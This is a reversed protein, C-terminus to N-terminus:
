GIEMFTDVGLSLNIVRNRTLGNNNVATEAEAFMICHSSIQLCLHQLMGAYHMPIAIVVTDPRSFTLAAPIEKAPM